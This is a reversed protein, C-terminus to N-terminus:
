QNSKRTSEANSAVKCQIHIHHLSQWLNVKFVMWLNSVYISKWQFCMRLEGIKDWLEFWVCITAFQEWKRIIEIITKLKFIVEITNQIVFIFYHGNKKILLPQEIKRRECLLNNGNIIILHYIFFQDM